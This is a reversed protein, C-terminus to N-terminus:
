AARLAAPSAQQARIPQMQCVNVHSSWYSTHCLILLTNGATVAARRCPICKLMRGPRSHVRGMCLTLHCCPQESFRLLWCM